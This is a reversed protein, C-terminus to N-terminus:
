GDIFDESTIGTRANWYRWGYARVAIWMLRRTILNVGEAELAELFLDDAQKRTGQKVCYRYDHLVAARRSKGTPSIIPHVIRPISALDTIFTPPVYYREGDASQYGMLSLVVWEGAKTHARLDLPNLFEAHYDV